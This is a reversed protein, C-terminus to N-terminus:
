FDSILWLDSLLACFPDIRARQELAWSLFRASATDGLLACALTASAALDVEISDIRHRMVQRMCIGIVIPRDGDRGGTAAERWRPEGNILSGALALRLTAADKRVFRNPRRTRWWSLPSEPLGASSPATVSIPLMVRLALAGCANAVPM